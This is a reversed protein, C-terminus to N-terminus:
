IPPTVNEDIFGLPIKLWVHAMQFVVKGVQHHGEHGYGDISGEEEALRPGSHNNGEGEEEGQSESPFIGQFLSHSGSSQVM